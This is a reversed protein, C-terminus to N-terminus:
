LEIKNVYDIMILRQLSPPTFKDLFIGYEEVNDALKFKKLTKKNNIFFTTGADTLIVKLPLEIVVKKGQASM